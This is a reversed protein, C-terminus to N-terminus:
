AHPKPFLICTKKFLDFHVHLDIDILVQLDLTRMVQDWNCNPDEYSPNYNCNCLLNFTDQAELCICHNSERVPFGHSTIAAGSHPLGESSCNINRTPAFSMSGM